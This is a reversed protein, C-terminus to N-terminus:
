GPYRYDTQLEDNGGKNVERAYREADKTVAIIKTKKAISNMARQDNQSM